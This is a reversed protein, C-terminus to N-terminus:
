NNPWQTMARASELAALSREAAAIASAMAARGERLKDPAIDPPNTEADASVRKLEDILRKAKTRAEVLMAQVEPSEPDM